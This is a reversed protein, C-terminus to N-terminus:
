ASAASRKNLDQFYRSGLEAYYRVAAAARDAYPKLRAERWWPEHSVGLFELLIVALGIMVVARLVGFGGGLLRDLGSLGTHRVLKRALWSILGGVILALVLLVLRAAWLKVDPSAGAWQGLTPAIRGAFAWAM